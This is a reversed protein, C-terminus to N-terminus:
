YQHVSAVEARMDDALGKAWHVIGFAVAIAVLILIIFKRM